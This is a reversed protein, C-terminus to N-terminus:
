PQGQEIAGGQIAWQTIGGALSVAQYGHEALYATVGYSRVGHACMVVLTRERPLEDLRRPVDNMPIHQAGPMRMQRWEYPERVDLVSPPNAGALAVRLEVASMEKVAPAPENQGM